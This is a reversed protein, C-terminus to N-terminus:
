EADRDARSSLNELAQEGGDDEGGSVREATRDRAPALKM